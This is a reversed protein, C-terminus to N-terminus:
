GAPACPRDSLEPDALQDHEAVQLGPTDPKRLDLGNAHMGVVTPGADAARKQALRDVPCPCQAAVAHLEGGVSRPGIGETEVLTQARAM